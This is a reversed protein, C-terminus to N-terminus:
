FQVVMKLKKDTPSKDRLSIDTIVIIREGKKTDVLIHDGVHSKEIFKNEDKKKVIWWYDKGDPNHKGKVYIRVPRQNVVPVDDMHLKKAVLYRVYGDVLVKDKNITIPKDLTGFKRCYAACNVLKTPSPQTKAFCKPIKIESLKM